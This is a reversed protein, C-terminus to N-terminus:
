LYIHKWLIHTYPRLWLQQDPNMSDTYPNPDLMKLSHPDLTHKQIM